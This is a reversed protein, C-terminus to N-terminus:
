RELETERMKDLAAQATDGAAGKARTAADSAGEGAGGFAEKASQMLGPAGAAPARTTARLRPKPPTRPTPRPRGLWGRPAQAPWAASVRGEPPM